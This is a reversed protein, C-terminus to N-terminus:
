GTVNEYMVQSSPHWCVLNGAFMVRALTFDSGNAIKKQDFFETMKFNYEPHIFFDWSNLDLCYLRRELAGTAGSTVGYITNNAACLFPDKVVRRGDLIMETFGQRATRNKEITYPMSRAEAEAQLALWLDGGVLTIIDANDRELGELPELISRLWSISIAHATTSQVTTTITGGMPQFWFGTDTKIGSAYTRTVGGYTSDVTLASNLGQMYKNSDSAGKEHGVQRYLLERLHVRVAENAKQVRWKAMNHLQTGDPTQRANELEEDIDIQVPMQFKKRHFTIEKTTDKVGHTLTDNVEYDQVLSEHTDTDVKRTYKHGGSFKMDKRELMLATVPNKKMYEEEWTADHLDRTLNDLDQHFSM